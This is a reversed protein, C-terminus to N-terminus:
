PRGVLAALKVDDIDLQGLYNRMGCEITGITYGPPVPWGLGDGPEEWVGAQAEESLNVMRRLSPQGGNPDDLVLCIGATSYNNPVEELKRSMRLRVQMRLARWTPDIKFSQKVIRPEQGAKSQELRLFRGDADAALSVGDGRSQWDAIRGSNGIKSFDGNNVPVSIWDRERIEARIREGTAIQAHRVKLIEAATLAREFVVV